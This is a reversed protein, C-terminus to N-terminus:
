VSASDWEVWVDDYEIDIRRLLDFTMNPNEILNGVIVNYSCSLDDLPRGSWPSHGSIIDNSNIVSELILASFTLPKTNTNIIYEIPTNPNSIITRWEWPREPFMDILTWLHNSFEDIRDTAAACWQSSVLRAIKYTAGDRIHSLIRTLLDTIAFVQDM